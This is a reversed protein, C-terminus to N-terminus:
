PLQWSGMAGLERNAREIMAPILFADVLWGLGFLGGTIMWLLGTGYRRAYFRHVGLLGFLAWLLYAMGVSRM